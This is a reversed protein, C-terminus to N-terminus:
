KEDLLSLFTIHTVDTITLTDLKKITCPLANFAAETLFLPLSDRLPEPYPRTSAGNPEQRRSSSGTRSSRCSTPPNSATAMTISGSQSPSRTM